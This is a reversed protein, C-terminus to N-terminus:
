LCCPSPAYLLGLFVTSSPQSILVSVSSGLNVLLMLFCPHNYASFLVSLLTGMEGASPVFGPPVSRWPGLSIVIAQNLVQGLQGKSGTLCCSPWAGM